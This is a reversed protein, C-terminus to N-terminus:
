SIPIRYSLGGSWGLEVQSKDYTALAGDLKSLNYVWGKGEIFLGLGTQPLEYNVGVGFTSAFKTKTAASVGTQDLTVGGVGGFAYPTLGSANRYQLQLAADYFYRRLKDGEFADGSRLENEAFTFDGRVSLFRTLQVAVGAGVNYGVKKFDATGADNLDTLAQFGGTRAALTVARDQAILPTSALLGGVLAGTLMRRTSLM